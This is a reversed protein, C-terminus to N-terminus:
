GIAEGTLAYRNPTPFTQTLPQVINKLGCSHCDVVSPDKFANIMDKKVNLRHIHLVKCCQQQEIVQVIEIPDDNVEITENNASEGEVVDNDPSGSEQNNGSDMVTVNSGDMENRCCEVVIEQTDSNSGSEEVASLVDIIGDVNYYTNLNLEQQSSPSTFTHTGLNAQNNTGGAKCYFRFIYSFNYPFYIVSIIVFYICSFFWM